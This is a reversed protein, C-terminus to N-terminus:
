VAEKDEVIRKDNKYAVKTIIHTGIPSSLFVAMFVVFLKIGTQNFGQYILLGISCLLLGCSECIGAAHLRTYFDKFRYVGVTSAFFCLFGLVLFIITLVNKIIM